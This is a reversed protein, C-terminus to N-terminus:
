IQIKDKRQWHNIQRRRSVHDVFLFMFLDGRRKNQSKRSPKRTTNLSRTVINFIIDINIILNIRIFPKILDYKNSLIGLSESTSEM